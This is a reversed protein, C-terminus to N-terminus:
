LLGSGLGWALQQAHGFTATIGPSCAGHREREVSALCLEQHKCSWVAAVSADKVQSRRCSEAKALPSRHWGIDPPETEEVSIM